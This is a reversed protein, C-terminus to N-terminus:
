TSRAAGGGSLGAARGAFRIQPLVELVGLPVGRKPGGRLCDIANRLEGSHQSMVESNACSKFKVVCTIQFRPSLTQPTTRVNEAAVRSTRM